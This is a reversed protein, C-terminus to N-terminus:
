GVRHTNSLQESESVGMQPEDVMRVPFRSDNFLARPTLPSERDRESSYRTMERCQCNKQAHPLLGKPDKNLFRTNISASRQGLGSFWAGTSVKSM